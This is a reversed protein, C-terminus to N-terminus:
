KVSGPISEIGVFMPGLWLTVIIWRKRGVQESGKFFQICLAISFTNWRIGSNIFTMRKKMYDPNFKKM